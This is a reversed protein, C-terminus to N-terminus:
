ESKMQKRSRMKYSRLTHKSFLRITRFVTKYDLTSFLNDFLGFPLMTVIPGRVYELIWGHDVMRYCKAAGRAVHGADGKRYEKRVLDGESYCWMEGDLIFAYHEAFSYRGSHGGSDVPSGFFSLYEQLSAHLLTFQGMAGGANSFTWERNFDIQGPYRETLDQAIETFMEDLPLGIHKRVVDHLDSPDFVYTV